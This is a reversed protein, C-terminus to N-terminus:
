PLIPVRENLMMCDKVWKKKEQELQNRREIQYMAKELKIRSQKEEALQNMALLLKTNSEMSPGSALAPPCSPRRPRTTISQRCHPCSKKDESIRPTTVRHVPPQPFEQLSLLTENDSDDTYVGSDRPNQVKEQPRKRLKGLIRSARNSQRKTKLYEEPGTTALFQALLLTDQSSKTKFM